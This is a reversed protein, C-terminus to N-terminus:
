KLLSSLAEQNLDRVVDYQRTEDPNALRCAYELRKTNIYRETWHVKGRYVMTAGEPLPGTTELAICQKNLHYFARMGQTVMLEIMMLVCVGCSVTDPQKPAKIHSLDWSSVDYHSKQRRLEQQVHERLKTLATLGNGRSGDNDVDLPDVYVFREHEFDVIALCFHGPIWHAAVLVKVENGLRRGFGGGAMRGFWRDSLPQGKTGESLPSLPYLRELSFTNYFVFSDAPTVLRRGMENLAEDLLQGHARLSLLDRHNLYGVESYGPVLAMAEPGSEAGKRMLGQVVNWEPGRGLEMALDGLEDIGDLEDIGSMSATQGASAKGNAGGKAEAKRTAKSNLTPTPKAKAKTKVERKQANVEAKRRDRLIAQAACVTKSGCAALAPPVGGIRRRTVV